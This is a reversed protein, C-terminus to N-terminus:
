DLLVGVNWTPTSIHPHPHLNQAVGVAFTPPFLSKGCWGLPLDKLANEKKLLPQEGTPRDIWKM